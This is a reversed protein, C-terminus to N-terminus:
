RIEIVAKTISWYWADFMDGAQNRIMVSHAGSSRVEGSLGGFIEVTLKLKTTDGVRGRSALVERFLNRVTGPRIEASLPLHTDRAYAYMDLTTADEYWAELFETIAASGGNMDLQGFRPDLDMLVAHAASRDLDNRAKVAM